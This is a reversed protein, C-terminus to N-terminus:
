SEGGKVVSGPGAALKTRVEDLFRVMDERQATSLYTWWGGPDGYDFIVLFYGVGVPLREKLTRGLRRANAEMEAQSTWPPSM